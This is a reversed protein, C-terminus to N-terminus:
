EDILDVDCKEKSDDCNEIDSVQFPKLDVTTLVPEFTKEWFTTADVDTTLGSVPDLFRIERSVCFVIEYHTNNGNAKIIEYLFLILDLESFQPCRVVYTFRLDHDGNQIDGLYIKQRNELM